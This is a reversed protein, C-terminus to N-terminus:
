KTGKTRAITAAHAELMAKRTLRGGVQRTARARAAPRQVREKPSESGSSSGDLDREKITVSTPGKDKTFSPLPTLEVHPVASRSDYWDVDSLQLKRNRQASRINGSRDARAFNMGASKDLGTNNGHINSNLMLPSPSSDGDLEEGDRLEYNLVLDKIRKQEEREAAQKSKM